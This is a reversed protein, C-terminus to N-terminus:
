TAANLINSYIKIIILLIIYTCIHYIELTNYKLQKKICQDCSYHPEKLEKHEFIFTMVWLDYGM